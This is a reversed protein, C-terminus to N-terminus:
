WAPMELCATIIKVYEANWYFYIFLCVLFGREVICFGRIPFYYFDEGPLFLYHSLCVVWFLVPCLIGIFNYFFEGKFNYGLANALPLSIYSVASNPGLIRKQLRSIIECKAKRPQWFIVMLTALANNM